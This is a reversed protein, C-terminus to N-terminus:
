GTGSAVLITSFVTLAMTVDAETGVHLSSPTMHTWLRVGKKTRARLAEWLANEKLGPDSLQFASGKYRQSWAWIDVAKAGHAVPIDVFTHVDREAQTTSGTYRGPHALAKRAQLTVLRGWRRSAETWIATMAEDRTVGWSAYQADSRLGASLNLVDLAGLGLYSDLAEMTAGPNEADETAACRRMAATAEGSQWALCGLDPVVMDIMVKLGPLRARLATTAEHLFALSDARGMDDGYGLEDAIKVGQVGPRDALSAVSSVVAQFHHPGARWAKVLDAEVWAKGGKAVV